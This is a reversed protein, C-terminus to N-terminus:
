RRRTVRFLVLDCALSQTSPSGSRGTVRAVAGAAALPALAVQLGLVPGSCDMSAVFAEFSGAARGEVELDALRLPLLWDTPQSQPRPTLVGHQVLLGVLGM